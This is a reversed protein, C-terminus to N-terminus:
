DKCNIIVLNPINGPSHLFKNYNIKYCKSMKDTTELLFTIDLIIDFQDQNAYEDTMQITIITNDNTSTTDIVTMNDSKVVAKTEYIKNSSNFLEIEIMEELKEFNTLEFKPYYKDGIILQLQEKMNKAQETQAIVSKQLEEYQINLMKNNIDLGKSQQIYGMVLWFFAIPAAVGALYDGVENLDLNKFTFSGNNETYLLIPLLIIGFIWLITFIITIDMQFLQKSDKGSVYTKQIKGMLRM